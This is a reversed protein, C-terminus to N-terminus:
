YDSDSVCGSDSFWKRFGFDTTILGFVKRLNIQVHCVLSVWDWARKGGNLAHISIIRTTYHGLCSTLVCIANDWSCLNENLLVPPPPQPIVSLKCTYCTGASIAVPVTPRVGRPIVERELESTRLWPAVPGKWAHEWIHDRHVIIKANVSSAFNSPLLHSVLNQASCTTIHLM